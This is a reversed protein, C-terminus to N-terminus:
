STIKAKTPMIKGSEQNECAHSKQLPCTFKPIRIKEHMAKQSRAHLNRLEQKQMCPKEPAHMHFEFDQNKCTRM